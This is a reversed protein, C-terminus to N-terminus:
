AGNLASAVFETFKPKAQSGTLSAVEKGGKFVKFTPIGRVGFKQALGTNDDINIKAFKAETFDAATAEFMPTMMKCPGCWPAWFDVVVPQESNLIEAEFNADNIEITM